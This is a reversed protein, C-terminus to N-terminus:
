LNGGAICQLHQKGTRRPAAHNPSSSAMFTETESRAGLCCSVALALGIDLDCSLACLGSRGGRAKKSFIRVGSEAINITVQNAHSSVNHVDGPDVVNCLILYM